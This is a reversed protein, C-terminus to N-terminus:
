KAHLHLDECGPRACRARRHLALWGSNITGGAPEKKPTYVEAKSHAGNLDMGGTVLVQGTPLLTATHQIRASAMSGAASWTGTAPDYLEATGLIQLMFDYHGGVVLVKGNSLLTTNLTDGGQGVATASYALIAGRLRHEGAGNGHAGGESGTSGSRAGM